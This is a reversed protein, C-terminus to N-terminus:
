PAAGPAEDVKPSKRVDLQYWALLWINRVTVSIAIGIWIGDLGLATEALAYALIVRLVNSTVSVITPKITLGKGRFAGVAVGEMCSLIQTLAFVRLYTAGIAVSAPDSLFIGILPRAFFFLVATVFVGYIAMAAISIKYGQRLRGYKKAGFNQGMFATVASAFGVAMMWSLSEVQSGVRQAALAGYGFDAIRWSVVMFLLTFLGSEVAVPTSWRFIQKVYERQPKALFNFDEFPRGSYHQLAWLKLSLNIVQAIVTAIAAGIIGMELVFIFVPTIAINIGLGFSNIYFPLRTNGFGNFVGTIVHHVFFFPFALATFVLYQEAELVVQAEEIGFSGILPRHFAIMAAGYAVGLVAAIVFANQAYKKAAEVNGEGMKQSVGIEAGMRGILIFAMSLWLFLGATGAAAVSGDSLRSLWFMDSLNFAMQMFSTAVIPLALTILRQLIPGQTLDYKSRARM